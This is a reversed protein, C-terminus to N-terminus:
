LDRLASWDADGAAQHAFALEEEINWTTPEAGDLEDQARFGYLLLLTMAEPLPHEELIRLAHTRTRLLIDMDQRDYEPTNGGPLEQMVPPALPATFILRAAEPCSLELGLEVFDGYDHRLRPFTRCVECLGEEGLETQIQCLGDRRWMPCRRETIELYYEGEDDQKLKKRLSDGLPGTLALYRQASLADVQVDWEQCCSDPCDGAICRFQDYYSPKLLKM